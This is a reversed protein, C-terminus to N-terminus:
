LISQQFTDVCNTWSYGKEVSPPAWVAGIEKLGTLGRDYYRERIYASVWRIAEPWNGFEAGSNQGTYVGIGWANYSDASPMKKGLNSECMAIAVVLRFDLGNRDAEEVIFNAHPVLPSDHSQLFSQLLLSRADAATVYTGLLQGTGSLTTQSLQAQAIPTTPDVAAAQPHGAVTLLALNVVLLILALPFWAVLLLLKRLM